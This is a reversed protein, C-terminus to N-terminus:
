FVAFLMGYFHDAIQIITSFHPVGLFGLFNHSFQHIIHGQANGIVLVKFRRQPDMGKVSIHGVSDILDLSVFRPHLFDEPLIRATLRNGADKPIHTCYFISVPHPNIQFVSFEIFARNMSDMAQFGYSCSVGKRSTEEVAQSM